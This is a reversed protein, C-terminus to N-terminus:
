GSGIVRSLPAMPTQTIQYGLSEDKRGHLFPSPSFIRRSGGSKETRPGRPYKGPGSAERALVETPSSGSGPPRKKQEGDEIRLFFQLILSLIKLNDLLTLGWYDPMKDDGKALGTELSSSLPNNKKILGRPQSM